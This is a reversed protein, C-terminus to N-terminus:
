ARIRPVLAESLSRVMGPVPGVGSPGALGVGKRLLTPSTSGEEALKM